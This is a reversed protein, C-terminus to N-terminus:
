LGSRKIPALIRKPRSADSGVMGPIIKTNHANIFGIGSRIKRATIKIAIPITKDMMM